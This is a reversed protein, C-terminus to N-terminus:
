NYNVILIYPTESISGPTYNGGTKVAEGYILLKELGTKKSCHLVPNTSGAKVKKVIGEENQIIEEESFIISFALNNNIINYSAPINGPKLPLLSQHKGNIAEVSELTNIDNIGIVDTVITASATIVASNSIYQANTPVTFLFGLLLIFISKITGMKSFKHNTINEPDM